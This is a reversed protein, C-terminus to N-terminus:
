AAKAEQEEKTRPACVAFSRPTGDNVVLVDHTKALQSRLAPVGGDDQIDDAVVISSALNLIGFVGLRNGDKRPPGDIIVMSWDRWPISGADYWSDKLPRCHIHINSLGHKQAEIRLHEGFVPSNELCHVERKPNAAAMVLSSLGSGCELIPGEGERALSILCALMLPSAAFNNGWMEHLELLHAESEDGARIAGLGGKLGLGSRQRFWSGVNGTWVHEGSHEFRMDPDIYIKGGLDRWKRCFMYDGGWRTGEITRREFICPIASGADNKANYWEASRGLRELVSRRIRLFGTPVAMVEILGDRDSWIEGPFVRVPYTDDNDKKPYIGAVVDRDFGLLKIFDGAHWGIDADLFVMDTCDSNLFDRTLRNRGDDVHCNGSYIALEFAIGARELAAGTHMLSYTFGACLGDYAAVAIFVKQGEAPAGRRHLMRAM